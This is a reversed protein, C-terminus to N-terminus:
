RPSQEKQAVSIAILKNAGHREACMRTGAAYEAENIWPFKSMLRHGCLERNLEPIIYLCYEADGFPTFLLPHVTRALRLYANTDVLIKSQPM